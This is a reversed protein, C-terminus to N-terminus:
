QTAVPQIMVRNDIVTFRQRQAASLQQKLNQLRTWLEPLTTSIRESLGTIDELNWHADIYKQAQERLDAAAQKRAQAGKLAISEEVLMVELRANVPVSTEKDKEYGKIADIRAQIAAIDMQAANFSNDLAVIAEFAEEVGRYPAAQQLKEREKETTSLPSALQSLANPDTQAEQSVTWVAMELDRIGEEKKVEISAVYARAVKEADDVSMAYLVITYDNADGSQGAHTAAGRTIQVCLAPVATNWFSLQENSFVVRGSRALRMFYDQAIPASPPAEPSSSHVTLIAAYAPREGGVPSAGGPWSIPTSSQVFQLGGQQGATGQGLVSPCVWCAVIVGCLLCKRIGSM